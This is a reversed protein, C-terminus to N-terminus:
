FAQNSKKNPEIAAHHIRIAREGQLLAPFLLHDFHYGWSNEELVKIFDAYGKSTDVSIIAIRKPLLEIPLLKNKDILQEAKLRQLTVAKEKELDGLTYSPDIDHIRLALGYVPDFSISAEFLIKIGDKLPEKL